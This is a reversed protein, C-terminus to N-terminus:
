WPKRRRMGNRVAGNVGNAVGSVTRDANHRAERRAHRLEREVHQFDHHLVDLRHNAADIQQGYRYQGALHAAQNARHNRRRFLETIQRLESRPLALAQRADALDTVQALAGGRLGLRHLRRLDHEYESADRIDQRLIRRPDKTANPGWIGSSPTVGFIQSRFEDRVTQTLQQEAQVLQDRQKQEAAIQKQLSGSAQQLGRLGRAAADAASGLGGAAALAASSGATAIQGGSAYKGANIAAMFAVGYKDVAAARMVYEGNSAWIPVMDDTPGGPGWVAGGGARKTKPTNVDALLANTNRTVNVHVNVVRDIGDLARKVADAEAKAQSAGTLQIATKVFHPTLGLTDLYASMDKKSIGAATGADILAARNRKLSETMKDAPVGAAAQANILAELNTVQQRIATRNQIAADSQGHLSKTTHSLSSALDNLGKRWTDAAAAVNIKPDLLASLSAQLAQARQELTLSKNSLNAFADAVAKTKARNSDEANTIQVINDIMQSWKNPDATAAKNLDDWTIGLRQMAPAARDAIQQLQQLNSVTEKAGLGQGIESASMRQLLNNQLSAGVAAMDADRQNNGTINQYVFAANDFPHTIGHGVVGLFSHSQNYYNEAYAKQADAIAQAQSAFQGQSVKMSSNLQDTVAGAQSAAARYDQLAGVLGGAVAGPVGGILSGAVADAATNTVGLNGLVGTSALALAGGSLAGRGIGQLAASRAANRNAQEQSTLYSSKEVANLERWLAINRKIGSAYGSLSAQGKPGFTAESVSQFGTTALKALAMAQMLAILPTALPSQAIADLINAIADLADLTPGGLPAAAQVLDVFLQGIDGLLNVVKPGNTDIYEVFAQFDQTKGLSTAWHDFDQALKLLGGDVQHTLPGFAMLIQALGHAVDGTAVSMIRLDRPAEEGVFRLFPRWQQSSLAHGGERALEGLEASIGRIGQRIIPTDQLVSHLGDSLGSALGGGAADQRLKDFLPMLRHLELVLRQASPPLADMAQQAAAINTATPEAYAKNFKQLTSGLGHFALETVGVGAGLSTVNAGLTTVAPIAVATIPIAAPGVAALGSVLLSLRGSYKDISSANREVSRGLSDTDNELQRSTRSANAQSGGMHQLAQDAVESAAAVRLLGPSVRDDLDLVVSERRVTM